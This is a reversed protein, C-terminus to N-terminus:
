QEWIEKANRIEEPSKQEAWAGKWRQPLSIIRAGAAGCEPCTAPLDRCEMPRRATFLTRCRLCRYEYLIM